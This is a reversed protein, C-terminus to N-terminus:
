SSSPATAKASHDPFLAPLKVCLSLVPPTWVNMIYQCAYVEKGLGPVPPPNPLPLLTQTSTIYIANWM